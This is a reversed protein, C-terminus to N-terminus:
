FVIFFLLHSLDGTLGLCDKRWRTSVEPNMELNQELTLQNKVKIKVSPAMFVM